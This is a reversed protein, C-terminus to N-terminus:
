FRNANLGPVEVNFIGFGAVATKTPMSLKIQSNSHIKLSM